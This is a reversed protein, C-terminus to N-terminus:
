FILDAVRLANEKFSSTMKKLIAGLRNKTCLFDSRPRAANKTYIFDSRPAIIKPVVKAINKAVMKRELGNQRAPRNGLMAGM